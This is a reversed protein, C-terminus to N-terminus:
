QHKQKPVAADLMTAVDHPHVDALAFSVVGSRGEAPASGFLTVGDIDSLARMAARPMLM